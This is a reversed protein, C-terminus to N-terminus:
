ANPLPDPLLLNLSCLRAAFENRYGTAERRLLAGIGGGALVKDWAEVILRLRTREYAPTYLIGTFQKYHKERYPTTLLVAASPFSM